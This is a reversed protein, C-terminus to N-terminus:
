LSDKMTSTTQAEPDALTELYGDPRRPKSVIIRFRFRGTLWVSIFLSRSSEGRSKAYSNIKKHYSIINITNPCFMVPVCSYLGVLDVLDLILELTAHPM